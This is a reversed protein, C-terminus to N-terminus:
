AAVGVEGLEALLLDLAGEPTTGTVIRLENLLRDFRQAYQQEGFRRWQGAVLILQKIIESEMKRAKLREQIGKNMRESRENCEDCFDNNRTLEHCVGCHRETKTM